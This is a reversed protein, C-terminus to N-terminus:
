GPLGGTDVQKGQAECAVRWLEQLCDYANAWNATIYTGVQSRLQVARLMEPTMPAVQQPPAARYLTRVRTPDGGNELWSEVVFDSCDTWVPEIRHRMQYVPEAATTASNNSSNSASNQQAAIAARVDNALDTLPEHLDEDLVMYRAGTLVHAIRFTSGNGKTQVEWGNPLPLYHRDMEADYEAPPLDAGEPTAQAPDTSPSATKTAPSNEMTATFVPVAAVPFNGSTKPDEDDKDDTASAAEKSSAPPYNAPCSKWDCGGHEHGAHRGCNKCTEKAPEVQATSAQQLNDSPQSSIARIADACESAGDFCGDAHPDARRPNDAAYKGRGKYQDRHDQAIAECARIAEEVAAARGQQHAVDEAGKVVEHFDKPWGNALVEKGGEQQLPQATAQALKGSLAADLRAQLEEAREKEKLWQPHLEEMASRRGEAHAAAIKPDLLMEAYPVFKGGILAGTGHLVADRMAMRMAETADGKLILPDGPGNMTSARRYQRNGLGSTYLRARAPLDPLPLKRIAAGVSSPSPRSELAYAIQGLLVFAAGYVFSDDGDVPVVAAKAVRRLRKAIDEQEAADHKCIARLDTIEAIAYDFLSEKTLVPVGAEIARQQYPKVRVPQAPTARAALAARLEAIEADKAKNRCESCFINSLGCPEGGGHGGSTRSCATIREEWTKIDNM